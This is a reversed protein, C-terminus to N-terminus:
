SCKKKKQEEEKRKDSVGGDHNYRANIEEPVVQVDKTNVEHVVLDNEDIYNKVARELAASDNNAIANQVDESRLFAQVQKKTNATAYEDVVGREILTNINGNASMIEAAIAQRAQDYNGGVQTRNTSMNEIQVNFSSMPTFDPRGNRYWVGDLGNESLVRIAGADNPNSGNLVIFANDNSPAVSIGSKADSIAQPTDGTAYDARGRGPARGYGSPDVYSIPNNSCFAYLNLGDGRYEDEQTFRCVTPNYYRKRLYYQGTVQDYAEGNYTYRNSIKEESDTM